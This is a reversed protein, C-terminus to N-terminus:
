FGINNINKIVYRRLKIKRVSLMICTFIGIGCCLIIFEKIGFLFEVSKTRQSYYGIWYFRYELGLLQYIILLCFSILCMEKWFFKIYNM